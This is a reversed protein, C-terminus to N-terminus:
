VLCLECAEGRYGVFVWCKVLSLGVMGWKDHSLDMDSKITLVVIM